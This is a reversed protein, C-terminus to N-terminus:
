YITHSHHMLIKISRSSFLVVSCCERWEDNTHWFLRKTHEIYPSIFSRELQYSRLLNRNRQPGQMIGYCWLSSAICLSLVIFQYTIAISNGFNLMPLFLQYTLSGVSSITEITLLFPVLRDREASYNVLKVARHLAVPKQTDAFKRETTTWSCRLPKHYRKVILVSHVDEVFVSNNYIQLKDACGQFM